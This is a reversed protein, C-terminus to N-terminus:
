ILPRAYACCYLTWNGFVRLLLWVTEIGRGNPPIQNRVIVPETMERRSVNSSSIALGIFKEIWPDLIADVVKFEFRLRKSVGNLMVM